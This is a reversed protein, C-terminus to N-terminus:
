VSHTTMNARFVCDLGIVVVQRCPTVPGQRMRLNFVTIRPFQQIFERRNFDATM